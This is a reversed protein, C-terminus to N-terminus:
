KLLTALVTRYEDDANHGPRPPRQHLETLLRKPFCGPMAPREDYYVALHCQCCRELSFTPNRDIDTWEATLAPHSEYVIPEPISGLPLPVNFLDPVRHFHHQQDHSSCLKDAKHKLKEALRINPGRFFNDNNLDTPMDEQTANHSRVMTLGNDSLNDVGLRFWVCCNHCYWWAYAEGNLFGEMLETTIRKRHPDKEFENESVLIGSIRHGSHPKPGQMAIRRGSVGPGIPFEWREEPTSNIYGPSASLSRWPKYAHLTTDATINNSNSRIGSSPTM